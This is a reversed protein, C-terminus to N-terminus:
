ETISRRDTSYQRRYLVATERVFQSEPQDWASLPEHHPSYGIVERMVARVEDNMSMHRKRITRQQRSLLKDACMGFFDRLKICMYALTVNVILWASILAMIIISVILFGVVLVEIYYDM